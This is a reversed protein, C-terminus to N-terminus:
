HRFVLALTGAIVFTWIAVVRAILLVERKRELDLDDRTM